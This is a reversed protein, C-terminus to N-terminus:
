TKIAVTNGPTFTITGGELEGSFRKPSWGVAGRESGPPTYPSISILYEFARSDGVM